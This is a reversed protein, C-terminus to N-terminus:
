NGSTNKEMELRERELEAFLTVGSWEANTPTLVAKHAVTGMQRLAYLFRELVSDTLGCFVIMEANIEGTEGTHSYPKRRELIARLPVQYDEAGIRRVQVQLTKAIERLRKLRTHDEMQYVLVTPQM